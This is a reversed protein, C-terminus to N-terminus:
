KQHMGLVKFFSSGSSINSTVGDESSIEIQPSTLERALQFFRKAPLTISGEKLVKAKSYCRVGVTLDTATLILENHNAELLFNSLIPNSPKAGVVNQINTILQTLTEKAVVFQM